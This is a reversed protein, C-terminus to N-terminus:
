DLPRLTIRTCGQWTAPITRSVLLTTCPQLDGFRTSRWGALPAQSSELLRVESGDPLEFQVVHRPTRVTVHRGSVAPALGAPFHWCQQIHHTGACQLTDTIDIVRAAKDLRYERRHTVADRLRSYGDHSGALRDFAETSEYAECRAQAHRTWLFPGGSVSQDVGDVCVTNHAATSRFYDRWRKEIYYGYTGTDILVEEGGVSLTCALADAHGHAAIGLFGLPAVDVVLRIEDPTEFRDGLVYWGGDAFAKRSPLSRADPALAEFRAAAERGLLWRCQDNFERAKYRFDARDFLVAGKALLSRYVDAIGGPPFNVVVAGDEDGINPTHGGHDMVSALLELMRQSREWFAESFPQGAARSMQGAFLMMELVFHHYFVAQERNVGDPTNQLLAEHEFEQQAQARWGESEPWLPWTTTAAYLGLLEGLLHNNASSHRSLYGAVFRCHQWVSPSGASASRRATPARSCRRPM